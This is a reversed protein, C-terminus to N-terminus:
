SGPHLRGYLGESYCGQEAVVVKDAGQQSSTHSADSMCGSGRVQGGGGLEGGGKLDVALICIAVCRQVYCGQEVMVV